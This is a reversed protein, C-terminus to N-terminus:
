PTCCHRRPVKQLLDGIDEDGGGYNPRLDFLLSLVCGRGGCGGMLFQMLSKSLKAMNEHLERSNVWSRISTALKIEPEKAEESDLKFMHFNM